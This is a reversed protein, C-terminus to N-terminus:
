STNVLRVHPVLQVATAAATALTVHAQLLQRRATAGRQIARLVLSMAALWRTHVMPVCLALRAQMRRELAPRAIVKSPVPAALGTPLAPWVREAIRRWNTHESRRANVLVQMAERKRLVRLAIRPQKTRTLTLNARLAGQPSGPPGRAQSARLANRKRTASGAPQAHSVYTRLFHPKGGRHVYSAIPLAARQRLDRAAHPVIPLGPQHINGLPVISAGIGPDLESIM